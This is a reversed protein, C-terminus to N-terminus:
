WALRWYNMNKDVLDQANAMQEDTPIRRKSNKSKKKEGMKRRLCEWSYTSPNKKHAIVLMEIYVRKVVSDVTFLDLPDKRAAVLNRMAAWTKPQGVGAFLTQVCKSTFFDNGTIITAFVFDEITWHLDKVLVNYAIVPDFFQDSELKLCTSHKLCNRQAADSEFRTLIPIMDSDRSHAVLEVFANEDASKPCVPEGPVLPGFLAWKMWWAQKIDAEALEPSTDFQEYMRQPPVSIDGTVKWPASDQSLDLIVCCHEGSPPMSEKRWEESLVLREIAHFILHRAKRNAMLEAPVFDSDVKMREARCPIHDGDLFLVKHADTDSMPKYKSFQKSAAISRKEQTARKLDTVNPKDAIFVCTTQRNIQIDSSAEVGARYSAEDMEHWEWLQKMGGGLVKQMFGDFSIRETVFLKHMIDPIVFRRKVASGDAVLPKEAFFAAKLIGDRLYPKVSGHLGM